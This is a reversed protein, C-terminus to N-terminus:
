ETTRALRAGIYERSAELAPLRCHVEVATSGRRHRHILVDWEEIGAELTRRSHHSREM